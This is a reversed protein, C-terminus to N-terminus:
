ILDEELLREAIELANTAAGRRLNDAAVWMWFGGDDARVRGVHVDDGGAVQRPTPYQEPLEGVVLRGSDVLIRLIEGAQVRAEPQLWVAACHGVEVGVRVATVSVPLADDELIKRTEERIKEEEETHGNATFGGIEPLLNGGLPHRFPGEEGVGDCRLSELGRRGAGSASQYTSVVVRKLGLRRHLPWLATVLQITLCNPSAIIGRHERLRSGNVVVVVLPVEPDMRYATSKDICVVGRRALRPLFAQAAESGACNFVLDVGSLQELSAGRVPVSDGKFSVTRGKGESALPVLEAVPFEREELAAVLHEGVLGTSGIVGVRIM